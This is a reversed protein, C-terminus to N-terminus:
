ATLQEIVGYWGLGQYTEYGPTRHFAILRGDGALMCGSNQGKTDLRLTDRLIGQGDSSAIIRGKADVIMVRTRKAEDASLRVGQVITRAQNEWDFHVAMVGIVEGHSTGGRRVATAYTAVQANNLPACEAIDAVTYDDGSRLQTSAKFWSQQSVDAGIVARMDPRSNAIVKGKLDVLWLDVYVTYAGLIVALRQSAHNLHDATPHEMAEVFASDTAWWRVDCTREYLNRDMIEIANLSLDVLRDANAQAALGETMTELQNVQGVLEKSLQQTIGAVTTAIERVESAVVAFGRGQEGARAAEILANLALMKLSGAISDINSIRSTAAQRLDQTALVVDSLTVHRQPTSM